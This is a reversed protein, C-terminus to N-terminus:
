RRGPIGRDHDPSGGACNGFPGAGRSPREGRGGGSRCGGRGGAGRHKRAVPPEAAPAEAMPPKEDVFAEPRDEALTVGDTGQIADAESASVYGESDLTEDAPVSAGDAGDAVAAAPSPAMEEADTDPEEANSIISPGPAEESMLRSAEQTGTPSPATMAPADMTDAAQPRTEGEDSPARTDITMPEGGAASEADDALITAEDAAPGEGKGESTPDAAVRVPTEDDAATAADPTVPTAPAEEQPPLATLDNEGVMAPSGSATTMDGEGDDEGAPSAARGESSRSAQPADETESAIPSDGPVVAIAPAKDPLSTDQAQIVDASEEPVAEPKLLYYTGAVPIYLTKLIDHVIYIPAKMVATLGTNYALGEAYVLSKQGWGREHDNIVTDKRYPIVTDVLGADVTDFRFTEWGRPARDCTQASDATGGQRGEATLREPYDKGGQPQLLVEPTRFHLYYRHREEQIRDAYRDCQAEGLAGAMGPDGYYWSSFDKHEGLNFFCGTLLFPLILVVASRNPICRSPNIIM